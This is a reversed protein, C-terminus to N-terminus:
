AAPALVELANAAVGLRLPLQTVVDGDSQVPQGLPGEVEAATAEIMRVGRARHLNGRLFAIAYGAATVVSGAEFLCLHLRADAADAGPAIVFPGGYHRVKTAILSRAEYTEGAVTVKYRPYDFCWIQRIVELVYAGQHLRRKLGLDLNAVVAADFGIGVMLVFHRDNAQGVALRRSAGKAVIEAAAEPNKPLGLERALINATGLPLLGLPVKSRGEEQLLGNVAENITGDGGAVVVAGYNGANAERALTFADGAAETTRLDFIMRKAELAALFRALRRRRKAGATPNFIVMIPATEAPSLPATPMMTGIDIANDNV